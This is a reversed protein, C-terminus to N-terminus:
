SKTEKDQAPNILRTWKGVKMPTKNVEPGVNQTFHSPLRRVQQDIVVDLQSLGVIEPRGLSNSYPPCIQNKLGDVSSFKEVSHSERTVM